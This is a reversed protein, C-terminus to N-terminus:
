PLRYVHFLQCVAHSCGPRAACYLYGWGLYGHQLIAQVHDRCQPATARAIPHACGLGAAEAERFCQQIVASAPRVVFNSLGASREGGRTM